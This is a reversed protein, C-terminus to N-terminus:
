RPLSETSHHRPDLVTSAWLLEIRTSPLFYVHLTVDGRNRSPLHVQVEHREIKMGQDEQAKSMSLIWAVKATNGAISWYCTVGGNGGWHDNIWFSFIPRDTYNESTLM